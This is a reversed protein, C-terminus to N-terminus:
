LNKNLIPAVINDYYDCGKDITCKKEAKTEDIWYLLQGNEYKIMAGLCKENSFNACHKRAQNILKTKNM